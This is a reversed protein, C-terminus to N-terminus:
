TAASPTNRFSNMRASECKKSQARFSGPSGGTTRKFASNFATDSGYGVSAAIESLPKDGKLADRAVAMRWHILYSLPPTGVCARFRETFATRSMAVAEALEEVKWKRAIDGHLLSLAPGIKPDALAGLWGPKHGGSGLHVRLIEVLVLNALSIASVSAGPRPSRTELGLLELVARLPAASDSAAKVHVLPPLLRLLMDSANDEFIFRGGAASVREGSDGYRVIGDAGRHTALIERGDAAELAPDSGTCYPQGRTLLYFDGAEMRVPPTGDESWLWFSGELVGGFKIHPYASFRLSWPGLVEIRASLLSTFKLLSLVDSLPDM